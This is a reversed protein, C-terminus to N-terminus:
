ARNNRFFVNEDAVRHKVASNGALTVKATNGPFAERDPIGAGDRDDLPNAIVTAFIHGAAADRDVPRFQAAPIDPPM